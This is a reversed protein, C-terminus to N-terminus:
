ANRLAQEFLGHSGSRAEIWHDLPRLRPVFLLERRVDAIPRPCTKPWTLDTTPRPRTSVGDCPKLRDKNSPNPSKRRSCGGNADSLWQSADPGHLRESIPAVSGAIGRDSRHATQHRRHEDGADSQLRARLPGDRYRGEAPDQDSARAAFVSCKFSFSALSLSSIVLSLAM